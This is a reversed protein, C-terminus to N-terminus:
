GEGEGEAEGTPKPAKPARPKRPARAPKPTVDGAPTPTEPSAVAADQPISAEPAPASREPMPSEPLPPAQFLDPAASAEPAAKPAAEPAADGGATPAVTREKRENRDPRNRRENRDRREGGQRDSHREGGQREGGGQRDGGHREGGPRDDERRERRQPAEPRAAAEPTEVLGPGEDASINTLFAPLDPQPEEDDQGRQDHHRQDRQQGRDGGHQGHMGNGNGGQQGQREAQERLLEVQAEGLMRTYHEAHQLFNQEAVRDNGLQADRALMLYKDIIQQPTGRVKGEPGSSDFVRNVINGM